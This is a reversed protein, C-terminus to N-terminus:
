KESAQGPTTAFDNRARQDLARRRRARADLTFLEGPASDVVGCACHVARNAEPGDTFRCGEPIKQAAAQVALRRLIDLNKRSL